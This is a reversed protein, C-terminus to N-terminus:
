YGTPQIVGRDGEATIQAIALSMEFKGDLSQLVDQGAETDGRPAFGGRDADGRLWM